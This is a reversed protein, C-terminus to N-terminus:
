KCLEDIEYSNRRHEIKLKKKFKASIRDFYIYLIPIVVLTLVTSTALGGAIVLGMGRLMESSSSSSIILPVQGLITTLATMLIPRLRTPCAKLVAEEIGMGDRDRLIDIFDILIIGNNVVIGILVLVGLLATMSIPENFIFMLAFSGMLALPITFMIIFPNIFSNFQAAMVSYVLVIALIIVLALSAFTENMMENTGGISVTYGDPFNMSNIINKADSSVSGTDRGYIDCTVTAHREQNSREVTNPTNDMVIDAISSLPVYVGLNTKISIDDLDNMNSYSNEPYIIRVDVETGDAKLTTATNGSVTNRIQSAVDSGTMGYQRIKDKNMIISVYQNQDELSSTIQRTGGVNALQRELEKCIEELGDLEEGYVDITVGGGAMSSMSSSESVTINAGAVNKVANRIEEAIESTSRKRDNKDGLDCTISSSNSGGGMISSGNSISVSVVKMEPVEELIKEVKLSLENVVETRSGKPSEVTINLTGEDSSPMLEMGIFPVLCLSLIFIGLISLLTRKKHKLVKKLTKGYFIDLKKTGKDFSDLLKNIFNLSKPAHNKNVNNVYNGALMPVVTIASILSAILAFVVSFALDSFIEMVMGSTFIFPVFIVITTLTSGVISGMVEKTAKYTGEVKGCGEITRYRYINELVVVSNDVLMGVGISLGGLSIINLSTGSFYLLVFTGIISLPMSIAIVGTLGANKLFVFLILISLFAGIFINRIVGYISEEIISGTENSINVKINGYDQSIKDVEKEVSNVIKVTNGDSAKSISLSICSKGNFRSITDIEKESETITAIDQLQLVTGTSITIPIEKIEDISAMKLKSSITLSKDGYDISGASVNNNEASLTNAIGNMSLGLGEMREPDIEITIEKEKGGTLDVSSVGSIREIRAQIKDEVLAKLEDDSLSDSTFAIQAVPTSNMDMKLVTPDSADDPLTGKVMDVKDRINTVAENMDTGYDFQVIVISTGEKSTSSVESIGEVNAVAGEISETILSEIEEPGAGSYTTMVIAVPVDISSMLEMEMKNLSIIGLIVIIVMCMIIAVNRKISFKILNM